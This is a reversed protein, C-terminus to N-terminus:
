ITIDWYGKKLAFGRKVLGERKKHSFELGDKKPFNRFSLGGKYVPPPPPLLPPPPRPPPTPHNWSNLSVCKGKM